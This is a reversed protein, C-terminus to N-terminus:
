HTKITKRHGNLLYGAYGVESRSGLDSKRQYFSDRTPYEEVKHKFFIDLLYCFYCFYIWWQFHALNVQFYAVSSHELTM